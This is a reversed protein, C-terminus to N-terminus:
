PGLDIRICENNTMVIGSGPIFTLAQFHAVIGPTATPVTPLGLTMTNGPVVAIWKSPDLVVYSGSLLAPKNSAIPMGLDLGLIIATNAAPLQATVSILGSSVIGSTAADQFSPIAELYLDAPTQVPQALSYAVGSPTGAGGLVTASGVAIKGNVAVGHGGAAGAGFGGAVHADGDLRLEIAGPQIGTAIGPKGAAVGPILTSGNGGLITSRVIQATTGGLLTLGTGAGLPATVAANWGEIRSNRIEVFNNTGGLAVATSGFGEGTSPSFRSNSILLQFGTAGGRLFCGGEVVVGDITLAGPGIENGSLATADAPDDSGLTLNSLITEFGVTPITVHYDCRAVKVDAPTAGMGIVSVSRSFHFMPYTGPMVLIRDGPNAALMATGITSFPAGGSDDVWLDAAASTPCPVLLALILWRASM